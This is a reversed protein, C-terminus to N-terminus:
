RVGCVWGARFRRVSAMGMKMLMGDDSVGKVDEWRSALYQNEKCVEQLPTPQIGIRM